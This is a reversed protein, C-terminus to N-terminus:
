VMRALRLLVLGGFVGYSSYMVWDNVEAVRGNLEALVIPNIFNNKLVAERIAQWADISHTAWKICTILVVAGHAAAYFGLLTREGGRGAFVFAISYTLLLPPYGMRWSHEDGPFTLYGIVVMCWSAVICLVVCMAAMTEGRTVILRGYRSTMLVLNFMQAGCVLFATYFSFVYLIVEGHDAFLPPPGFQGAFYAHLVVVMIIHTLRLGMSAYRFHEMLGLLVRYFASRAKLARVINHKSISADASIETAEHFRELALQPQGQALLDEGQQKLEKAAQIEGEGSEGAGDLENAVKLKAHSLTLLSRCEFHQPALAIGQEAARRCARWNGLGFEVKALQVFHDAQTPGLRVAELASVRAVDFDDTALAVVSKAYHGLPNYRDLRIALAAEEHAKDIEPGEGLCLALLAHVDASRSSTRVIERLEQEAPAWRRDKM